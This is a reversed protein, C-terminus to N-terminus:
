AVQSLPLGLGLKKARGASLPSPVPGTRTGQRPLLTDPSLPCAFM